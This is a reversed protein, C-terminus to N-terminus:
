IRKRRERQEEKGRHESLTNKLMKAKDQMNFKDIDRILNEFSRKGYRKRLRDNQDLYGDTTLYITDGKEDLDKFGLIPLGKKEITGTEVENKKEEPSQCAFLGIISTIILFRYIM